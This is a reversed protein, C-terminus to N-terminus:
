PDEATSPPDCLDGLVFANERKQLQREAELQTLLQTLLGDNQPDGLFELVSRYFADRLTPPMADSADLCIQGADNLLRQVERTGPSPQASVTGGPFYPHDRSEGDKASKAREAAKTAWAKRAASSTLERLLDWAADSKKFVAAMDGSVEFANEATPKGTGLYATTPTPLVDDGYHRRIFSGQHEHTCRGSNLLGHRGNSFRQEYGTRLAEAGRNEGNARVIQDAWEEWVRRTDKWDMRGTAWREYDAMGRRQLLLDELWDTGPWGSTADAGMGLCWDPKEGADAKRSWVISKLDVRVPVWYARTRPEGEDDRLTIHPAWPPGAADVVDDRLWEAEGARAYEALEGVSNLIALDPPADAELQAVLTERLSSTGEYHYEDGTREEIGDLAEQFPEEEGNTWPGLVVLTRKERAESYDSCGGAALAVAALLGATLRVRLRKM